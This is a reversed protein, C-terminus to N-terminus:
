GGSLNSDLPYTNAFCVVSDVLYHNIGQIANDVICSPGPRWGLGSSRSALATVM